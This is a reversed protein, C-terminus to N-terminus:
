GSVPGLRGSLAQALLSGQPLDQKFGRSQAWYRACVQRVMSGYFHITESNKPPSLSYSQPDFINKRLKPAGYPYHVHSPTLKVEKHDLVLLSLLVPGFFNRPLKESYFNINRNKLFFNRASKDEDKIDIDTDWNERYEIRSTTLLELYDAFLNSSPELYIVGNWCYRTGDRLQRGITVIEPNCTVPRLFYVDCDVWILNEVQMMKLRFLDSFRAPHKTLVQKLLDTLPLVDNANRLMVGKPPCVQNPEYSFLQLSQNARVFSSLCARELPGLGSGHWFTGFGKQQM